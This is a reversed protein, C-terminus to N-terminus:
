CAFFKSLAIFKSEKANASIRQPFTIIVVSIPRKRQSIKLVGFSSNDAQPPLGIM